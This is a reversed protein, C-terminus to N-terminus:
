VREIFQTDKVLTNNWVSSGYMLIPLVYSQFAPWLLKPSSNLFVHRIADAIRNAKSDVARCHDSYSGSASRIIGLDKVTDFTQLMADKIVYEFLPQKTGDHLVSCKEVSLPIKVEDSWDAVENVARQVEAQTLLGVDAIMKYDDAFALGPLKVRRILKEIFTNFLAPGNNSGQVVVSTVCCSSSVCNDIKVQRTRGSLFNAFWSLATGCRGVDCLATIVRAHPVKDFAKAFDFFIIDYPHGADICDAIIADCALMNTDTSRGCIFGHQAAHLCQNLDLYSVLQKKVIKKLIKNGSMFM